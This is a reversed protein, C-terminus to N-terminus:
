KVQSLSPLGSRLANTSFLWHCNNWVVAAQLLLMLQSLCSAPLFFFFFSLFFIQFHSTWAKFLKLMKTPIYFAINMHLAICICSFSRFLSYNRVSASMSARYLSFSCALASKVLAGPKLTEQVEMAKVSPVSESESGQHHLLKRNVIALFAFQRKSDVWGGLHGFFHLIRCNWNLWDCGRSCKITNEYYVILCDIIDAAVVQVSLLRGVAVEVLQNSLTLVGDSGRQMKITGEICAECLELDRQHGVGADAKWPSKSMWQRLQSPGGHTARLPM